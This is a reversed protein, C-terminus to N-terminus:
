FLKKIDNKIVKGMGNRRLEPLILYRRPLKYSAMREKLWGNLKETDVEGKTVIAAVIL